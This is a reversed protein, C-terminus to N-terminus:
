SSWSSVGAIVTEALVIASKADNVRLTIGLEYDAFNRQRRLLHLKNANELVLLVKTADNPDIDAYAYSIIEDSIRNFDEKVEVKIKIVTYKWSDDEADREEKIDDVSFPISRKTLMQSARSFITTAVDEYIIAYENRKLPKVNRPLDNIEEMKGINAKADAM